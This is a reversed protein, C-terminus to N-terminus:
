PREGGLNKLDDLRGELLDLWKLDAEVHLAAGETLLERVPGGRDGDLATLARLDSLYAQRQRDILRQPDETGTLQALVLKMFFEDKIRSKATPEGLWQDLEDRGRATLEYVRKNPRDTQDVESSSVLGDRALRNLTTYIQGANIAPWIGEFADEFSARLEYGHAPGAALLALFAHRM